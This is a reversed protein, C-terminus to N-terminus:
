HCQDAMRTFELIKEGDSSFYTFSVSVGNMYDPRWLTCPIRGDAESYLSDELQKSIFQDRTIDTISYYYHLQDTGVGVSDFTTNLALRQPLVANLDEAAHILSESIEQSDGDFNQQSRECSTISFVFVAAVIVLLGFSM